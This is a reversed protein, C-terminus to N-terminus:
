QTGKKPHWSLDDGDEIYGDLDFYDSDDNPGGKRYEWALDAKYEDYNDYGDNYVAM